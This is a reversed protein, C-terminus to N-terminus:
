GESKEQTIAFIKCVQLKPYKSCSQVHGDFNINDVQLFSQHKDAHLFDVEDSKKRSINCLYQKTIRLVKSM